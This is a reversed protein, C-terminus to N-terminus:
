KPQGIPCARAFELARAIARRYEELKELQQKWNDEGRSLRWGILVPDTSVGWLKEVRDSTVVELSWSTCATRLYFLGFFLSGLFCLLMTVASIESAKCNYAVVSAIFLLVTILGLFSGENERRIRVESVEATPVNVSRGGNNLISEWSRTILKDTVRLSGAELFVEESKIKEM